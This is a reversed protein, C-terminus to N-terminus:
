DAPRYSGVINRTGDCARLLAAAGAVLRDRRNIGLVSDDTCLHLPRPSEAFVGQLAALVRFERGMDHGSKPRTGAPPRRLVLERDGATLLYTLNSFGSPFQRVALPLVLGPLQRALYDGLRGADPMEGDRVPAAEDLLSM